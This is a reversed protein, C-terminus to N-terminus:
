KKVALIFSGCCNSVEFGTFEQDEYATLYDDSHGVFWVGAMGFTHKDDMRPFEAKKWEPNEFNRVCDIMGDFTSLPKVFLDGSKRLVFSKITTM